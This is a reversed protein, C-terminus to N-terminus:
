LAEGPGSHLPLAAIIRETSPKHPGGVVFLAGGPSSYAPLAVVIREASSHHPGAPPQHPGASLGTDTSACHSVAWFAHGQRGQLPSQCGHGCSVHPTIHAADAPPSVQRASCAPLSTQVVRQRSHQQVHQGKCRGPCQHAAGPLLLPQHSPAALRLKELQAAVGSVAAAAYALPCCQGLPHGEVAGELM